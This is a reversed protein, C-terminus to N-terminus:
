SNLGLDERLEMISKISINKEDIDLLEIAKDLDEEKKVEIEMYPYPYTGKDWTDLDFRIDDYVYSNREKCGEHVVQVDLSNLIYLLPKKDEIKTEIEINERVNTRSINEKLTITYNVEDNLLDRTERIRLYSKNNRQIKYDKTDLTTNVQYEKALLTAGLNILQKEIKDKDINLVKVELERSM